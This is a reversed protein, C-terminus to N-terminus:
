ACLANQLREGPAIVGLQERVRLAREHRTKVTVFQDFVEGYDKELQELSNEGDLFYQLWTLRHEDLQRGGRKLLPDM